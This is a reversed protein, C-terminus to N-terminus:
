AAKLEKAADNLVAEPIGRKRLAELLREATSDIPDPRVISMSM